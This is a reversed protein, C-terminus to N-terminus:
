FDLVLTLLNPCKALIYSLCILDQENENKKINLELASLNVQKELTSIFNQTRDKDNFNIRESITLNSIDKKTSDLFDEISDFYKIQQDM